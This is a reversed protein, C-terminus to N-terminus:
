AWTRMEDRMGLCTYTLVDGKGAAIEYRGDIDTIAADSRGQVLVAVGPVPEGSRDTVKGSLTSVSQAVLMTTCFVSLVLVSFLKKVLARM